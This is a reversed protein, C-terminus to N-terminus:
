LHVYIMYFYTFDERKKKKEIEECYLQKILNIQTNRQEDFAKM